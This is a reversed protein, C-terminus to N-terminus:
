VDRFLEPAGALGSQRRGNRAPLFRPGSWAARCVSVFASVLRYSKSRRPTPAPEGGFDGDALRPFAAGADDAADVRCHFDRGQPLDRQHGLSEEEVLVERSAAGKRFRFGTASAQPRGDSAFASGHDGRQSAVEQRDGAGADNEQAVGAKRVQRQRFTRLDRDVTRLFLLLRERLQRRAALPGDDDRRLLVLRQKFTREPGLSGASRQERRIGVEHRDGGILIARDIQEPLLSCAGLLSSALLVALIRKM